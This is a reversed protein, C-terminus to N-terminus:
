YLTFNVGTGPMKYDDSKKGKENKFITVEKNGTFFIDPVGDGTMDAKFCHGGETEFVVTKNGKGDFLCKASGIAISETGDGFWDILLHRRSYNVVIRGLFNGREDIIWVPGEGRPTHAIDVVIQNGPIDHYIKGVDISEFHLGDISWNLKGEGNIRAIRKGGCFTMVIDTNSASKGPKLIRACDMHGGLSFGQNKLDWRVSGDPNLMAYGAMIEDKGDHDIDIPYPQHATKWGAPKEVTWLLKGAQNYAWIQGYRTKVLIDTARKNGSLNVFVICDSADVPIPFSRKEKGTSGDLEIVMEKAAVVVELKGDGDWDYIQCAVDYALGFQGISPDGWHWLVTDDLKQVVVSCTYHNDNENVNRASVIEVQGDGDIDGAVVWSGGYEPDLSIRKWPKVVPVGTTSVDNARVDFLSPKLSDGHIYQPALPKNKDNKYKCSFCPMFFGSLLFL